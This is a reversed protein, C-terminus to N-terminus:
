DNRLKRLIVKFYTARRILSDFNEEPRLYGVLAGNLIEGCFDEKFTHMIHTEVSKKTNKYYPSWERSVVMKHDDGVMIFALPYM